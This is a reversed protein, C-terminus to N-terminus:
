SAGLCKQGPATEGPGLSPRGWRLRLPLLGWWQTEQKAGGARKSRYMRAIRAVFKATLRVLEPEDVHFLPTELEAGGGLGPSIPGVEPCGPLLCM